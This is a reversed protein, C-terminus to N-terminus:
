APRACCRPLAWKPCCKRPGISNRSAKWKRWRRMGGRLNFVKSFGLDLGLVEGVVRSMQGTDCLLVVDKERYEGFREEAVVERLFDDFPRHTVGPIHGQRFNGPERLDVILGDWEPQELKEQLLEPGLNEFGRGTILRRFFEGADMRIRARRFRILAFIVLVAGLTAALPVAMFIASPGSM